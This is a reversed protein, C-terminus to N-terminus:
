RIKQFGALFIKSNRLINISFFLFFLPIFKKKKFLALCLNKLCSDTKYQEIFDNYYESLREQELLFVKRKITTKLRSIKFLNSYFLSSCYKGYESWDKSSFLPNKKLFNYVYFRVPNGTVYTKGSMDFSVSQQNIRYNYLVNPVFLVNQAKNLIDITQILDEGRRIKHFCPNEAQPLLERKFAKICMSNYYMDFFVKKFLISKDNVLKIQNDIKRCSYVNGDGFRRWNFYVCECAYENFYKNLIELTEPELFDDSDLCLIIDGSSKSFAYNRTAIQGENAKSFIKVRNDKGEYEKCIKLSNDKSGDDVLILEFYQYSQRLVSEICECVYKEVNFVPVCISFLYNTM